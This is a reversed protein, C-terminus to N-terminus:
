LTGKTSSVGMRRPDLTVADSFARAFAKFLGECKHHDNSGFLISLHLTLGCNFALSKFFHPIMQTDLDGLNYRGFEGNFVFDPRGSCDLVARLLAEDMPIYAHGYRRIGKKEGLAENLAQGFAIGIDETTHHSDIHLDGECSVALDMLGHFALQDLMHDLFGIGTNTESTGEGDLNLKVRVLTERTKREISATRSQPM